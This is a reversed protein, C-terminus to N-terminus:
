SKVSPVGWQGSFDFHHFGAVAGEIEEISLAGGPHYPIRIYVTDATDEVVKVTAKAPVPLGAKELTEKPNAILRGKFTPDAVAKAIVEGLKKEGPTM